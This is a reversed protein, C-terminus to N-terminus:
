AAQCVVDFAHALVSGTGAEVHAVDFRPRAHAGLRQRAVDLDAVLLEPRRTSRRADEGVRAASMTVIDAAHTNELPNGPTKGSEEHENQQADPDEHPEDIGVSELR